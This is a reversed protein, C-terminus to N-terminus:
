EAVARAVADVISFDVLGDLSVPKGGTLDYREAIALAKKWAFRTMMGYANDPIGDYLFRRSIKLELMQERRTLDRDGLLYHTKPYWRAMLMDGVREPSEHVSRWGDRTALLFQTLETSSRALREPRAVFVEGYFYLGHRYGPFQRLRKGRASFILPWHFEWALFADVKGPKLLQILREEDYTHIPIFTVDRLTLGVSGLIVRYTDRDYYGDFVGLKKGKLDKLSRIESTEDTIISQPSFQFHAAFARVGAGQAVDRIVETGSAMGIDCQGRQVLSSVHRQRFRLRVDLGRRRYLGDSQALLLGAYEASPHWDLCVTLAAWGGASWLTLLIFVYARV